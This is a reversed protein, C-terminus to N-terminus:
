AGWGGNPGPKRLILKVVEARLGFAGPFYGFGETIFLSTKRKGFWGRDLFRGFRSPVIFAGVAPLRLAGGHIHGALALDVGLRALLSINDPTHSLGITFARRGGRQPLPSRCWPTELGVVSLGSESLDAQQNSLIQIGNERALREVLAGRQGEFDHNSRVLFKGCKEPLDALAAFVAPLLGANEGLDGLIFVADPASRSLAKVVRRLFGLKRRTNCHLDSLVLCEFGDAARPVREAAFTEVRLEAGPCLQERQGRAFGRSGRVIGFRCPFMFHTAILVGAVGSLWLGLPPGSGPNLLSFVAPAALACCAAVVVCVKLALRGLNRSYSGFLRCSLDLVVSAEGLLLGAVLLENHM